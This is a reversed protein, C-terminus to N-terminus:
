ALSHRRTAVLMGSGGLVLTVGALALWGSAAGTSPLQKSAHSGARTASATGAGSAHPTVGVTTATGGSEDSGDPDFIGDDIIACNVDEDAPCVGDDSMPLIAPMLDDALSAVLMVDGGPAVGDDGAPVSTEPPAAAARSASSLLQWPSLLAFLATLTAIVVYRTVVSHSIITETRRNSHLLDMARGHGTQTQM